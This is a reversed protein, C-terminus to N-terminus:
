RYEFMKQSVIRAPSVQLRTEGPSWKYVHFAKGYKGTRIELCTVAMFDEPSAAGTSSAGWPHLEGVPSCTMCQRSMKQLSAPLPGFALKLCQQM